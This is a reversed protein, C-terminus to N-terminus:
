MFPSSAAESYNTGNHITCPGVESYTVHGLIQQKTLPKKDHKYNQKKNQKHATKYNNHNTKYNNTTVTTM